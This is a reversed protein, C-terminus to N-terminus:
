LQCDLRQVLTSHQGVDRLQFRWPLYMCMWFKEKVFIKQLSGRCFLKNSISIFWLVSNNKLLLLNLISHILCATCDSIYFCHSKHVIFYWCLLLPNTIPLYWCYVQSILLLLWFLPFIRLNLLLNFISYIVTIHFFYISLHM